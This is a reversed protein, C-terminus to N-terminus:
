GTSTSCCPRAAAAVASARDSVGLKDYLTQLHSKVTATGLVLQRAIEPTTLGKSVMRLVELGQPTLRPQDRTVRRRLEGILEAQVEPPM